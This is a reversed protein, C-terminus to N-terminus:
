NRDQSSDKFAWLKNLIFNLPITVVLKLIPAWFTSVHMIEVLFSILGISFLFSVGYSAFVKLFAKYINKEKKNTFVYKNNWYFANCVSVIFGLTYATIYSLGLFLCLYYVLLNILTNSIGVIGFKIFQEFRMVFKNFITLVKHFAWKYKSMYKKEVYAFGNKKYDSFFRERRPVYKASHYLTQNHKVAKNLDVTEYVFNSKVTEWLLRAKESHLIILSTGKKDNLKPAVKNVGWFDAITFDAYEKPMQKFKCDYCSPRLSIDDLFANMYKDNFAPYKRVNTGNEFEVSTGLQLGSQNWGKDKNRFSFSVIKSGKVNEQSIIYDSFIRPSPVGHCIFDMIYLKEYWKNGLFTMLGAAQCPNGVFLVYRDDLLAQRVDIYVSNIDSQVYKSKRILDLEEIKEVGVHVAKLEDNLRCGFVIGKRKLIETAFLSFAGGSSSANRIADDLLYGGVAVPSDYTNEKEVVNENIIPCVNDCKNCGICKAFDVVPYWFGEEDYEMKIASMPCIQKCAKCGCCNKKESINIM